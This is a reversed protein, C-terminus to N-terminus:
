LIAITPLYLAHCSIVATLRYALEIPSVDFTYM